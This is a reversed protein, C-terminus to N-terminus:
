VSVISRCMYTGSIRLFDGSGWTQPYGARVRPNGSTADHLYAVVRQTSAQMYGWGARAHSVDNDWTAALITQDHEILAPLPFEWPNTSSPFSNAVFYEVTCLVGHAVFRMECNGIDTGGSMIDVTRPGGGVPLAEDLLLHQTAQDQPHIILPDINM